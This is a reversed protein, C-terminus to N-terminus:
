KVKCRKYLGDGVGNGQSLFGLVALPVPCIAPPLLPPAPAADKGAGRWLRCAHPSALFVSVERLLKLLQWWRFCFKM